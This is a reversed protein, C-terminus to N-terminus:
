DTSNVQPGTSSTDSTKSEDAGTEPSPSLGFFVRISAQAAILDRVAIRNASSPPLGGANSLFRAILGLDLHVIGNTDINLQIGDLMGVTIEDCRIETVQEGHAEIPRSLKIVLPESM